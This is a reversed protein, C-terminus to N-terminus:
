ALLDDLGSVSENDTQLGASVPQNEVIVADEITAPDRMPRLRARAESLISGVEVRETVNVDISDGYQGRLRRSLLWRWNESHLRARMVDPEDTAITLLRDAFLELGSDRAARFRRDYNQDQARWNALTSVDIRLAACIEVVGKGQEALTVATDKIAADYVTPPKGNTKRVALATDTEMRRITCRGNYGRLM